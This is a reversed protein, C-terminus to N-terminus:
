RTAMYIAYLSPQLDRLARRNQTLEQHRGQHELGLLELLLRMGQEADTHQARHALGLRSALAPLEILLWAPFWALDAASDSDEFSAGFQKHLRRLLPDDLRRLLDDLRAPAMWALEALLPWVDDLRDQRCLAEAMWSLPAPIRRWSEISEVAQVAELWYGGQLWLAAAHHNAHDALFPLKASREALASWLPRLWAEAACGFVDRACRAIDHDLVHREAAVAEYSGLLTRCDAELLGTLREFSALDTDDPFAEALARLEARAADPDRRELREIVDNRLMVDASHAFIDLQEPPRMRWTHRLGAPGNAAVPVVCRSHATPAGERRARICLPSLQM